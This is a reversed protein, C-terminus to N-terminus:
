DLNIEGTGYQYDDHDNKYQFFNAAFFICLHALDHCEPFKKEIKKVISEMKEGAGRRVM